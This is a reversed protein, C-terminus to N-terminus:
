PAVAAAVTNMGAVVTKTAVQVVDATNAPLAPKNQLKLVDNIVGITAVTQAKVLAAKQPGSGPTTFIAEAEVVAHAAQLILAGLVPNGTAAVIPAAIQAAAEAAHLIDKFVALWTM